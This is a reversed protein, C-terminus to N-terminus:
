EKIFKQSLEGSRIFYVGSNLNKINVDAENSNLEVKQRQVVDGILNYIQLEDMLHGSLHINDTSPNPYIKLENKMKHCNGALITQSFKYYGMDDVHKLRYYAVDNEESYDTYTYEGDGHYNEDNYVKLTTWDEGNFSKQVELMGRNWGGIVKWQLKAENKNSCEAKFSALEIPLIILPVFCDLLTVRSGAGLGNHTITYTTSGINNNVTMISGNAPLANDTVSAGAASYDPTCYNSMTIAGTGAAFYFTETQNTGNVIITLNTVPASFTLRIYHTTTILGWAPSACAYLNGGCSYSINNYNGCNTSVSVTIGSGISFYPYSTTPIRYATLYNGM